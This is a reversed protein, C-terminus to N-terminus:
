EESDDTETPALNDAADLKAKVAEKFNPHKFGGTHKTVHDLMDKQSGFAFKTDKPMPGKGTDHPEHTVTFSGKNAMPEITLRKFPSGVGPKAPNFVKAAM